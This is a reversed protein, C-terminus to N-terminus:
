IWEIKNKISEKDPYNILIGRRPGHFVFMSGASLASPKAEKYASILDSISGAGGLAVVPLKTANSVQKILEINYGTMLGDNDISQIIIEGAGSEELIKMYELLNISTKKEGAIIMVREKGFFDKKVDICIAISQSGYKNAVNEILKPNKYAATNIIVKEAGNNLLGDVEELKTIGGGVGFPMYAEDSIRKVLDLDIVKKNKSALVDLFVLEDTELDNYIKVANIPDGIYKAKKKNFKVTKVLGKNKLLLVPIIRPRFM